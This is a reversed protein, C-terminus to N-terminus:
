RADVEIRALGAGSEAPVDVAYSGDARASTRALPHGAADLVTVDAPTGTGHADTVTGSITTWAADASTSREITVFPSHSGAGAVVDAPADVPAAAFAPTRAARPATTAATATAPMATPAAPVVGTSPTAGHADPETAGDIHVVEEDRHRGLVMCLLGLLSWGLLVLWPRHPSADPFYAANRLLTSSAGPVLLQGFTGWHWPYFEMPSTAGSLPNGIFMTIIAGLPIGLKGLLANFGVITAGTAFLAATMVAWVHWFGSPLINMWPGLILALLLGAGVAYATVAALRRRSGVLVTSILVGGIMGGMALPLASVSLGSGRPDDKSLPVVDTMTVQPAAIAAVKAKAQTAVRNADDAATQAQAIRAALGAKMMPDQVQAAVGQLTKLSATTAAAKAGAAAAEQAAAGKTAAVKQAGAAGVKAAVGQILSSAVPSAAGATLIEVKSGNAVVAGYTEREKIDKMAQDRSEVGRLDFAGTAKLGEQVQTVVPGTGVVDFPLDKVTSTRSPWVFALLIISVAAIAGLATRITANWTSHVREPTSGVGEVAPATPTRQEATISM